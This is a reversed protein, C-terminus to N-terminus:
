AFLNLNTNQTNATVQHSPFLSLHASAESIIYRKMYRMDAQLSFLNLLLYDLHQYKIRRTIDESWLPYSLCLFAVSRTAKGSVFCPILPPLSWSEQTIPISISFSIKLFKMLLSSAQLWLTTNSNYSNRQFPVQKRFHINIIWPFSNQTLFNCGVTSDKDLQWNKKDKNTLEKQRYLIVFLLWLTISSKM